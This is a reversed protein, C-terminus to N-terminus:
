TKPEHSEEELLSLWVLWQHNAHFYRKPKHNAFEDIAANMEVAWFFGAECIMARRALFFMKGAVLIPNKRCGRLLEEVPFRSEGHCYYLKKFYNNYKFGEAGPPIELQVGDQIFDIKRNMMEDKETYVEHGHFLEHVRINENQPLKNTYGNNEMM